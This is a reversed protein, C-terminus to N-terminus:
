DYAYTNLAKIDAESMWLSVLNDSYGTMYKIGKGSDGLSATGNEDRKIVYAMAQRVEKKNLPYVDNNFYIAPGTYTPARIIRIKQDVFAKETAPPFGHTAYDVDGALVLPTVTATEGNFLVIKDFKVKGANWATPVKVMTLQAETISKPDINYPGSVILGAPRFDTAEKLLAKWEDTDKGKGAKVLADVKDALAGYTAASRIATIMILRQVVSAPKNMHFEVTYDDKATVTDVYNFEPWNFLRGVNWTALVDKATFDKGDSWKAGKRLTAVIKDPPVTEVKEAM